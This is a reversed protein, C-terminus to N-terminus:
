AKRQVTARRVVEDYLAIGEDCIAREGPTMSLPEPTEDREFVSAVVQNTKPGRSLGLETCLDNLIRDPERILEEYVLTVAPQFRLSAKLVNRYYYACRFLERGNCWSAADEKSVWYPVLVGDIVRNPWVRVGSELTAAGFWGKKLTSRVVDEFGRVVLVVRTEPFYELLKPVHQVVDPMKYAIRFNKGIEVLDAKRFSRNLRAEIMEESKVTYISSDDKRNCNITRGALAPFYFDESLYVTYLLKWVDAPLSDLLPMLSFLFPPEYALEVGELSHVLKSTLTTGSRAPGTILIAREAHQSIEKSVTLDKM